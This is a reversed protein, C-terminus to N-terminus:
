CCSTRRRSKASRSRDRGLEPVEDFCSSLCSLLKAHFGNRPEALTYYSWSASKRVKVLGARRLYALHRSATPQPVNLVGVLDCVCMEGDQLLHLIRLRTRDSFARFLRDVPVRAQQLMVRHGTYASRQYLAITRARRELRPISVGSRAATGM